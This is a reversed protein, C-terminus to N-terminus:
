INSPSAVTFHTQFGWILVTDCRGFQSPRFLHIFSVVTFYIYFCFLIRHVLNHTHTHTHTLSLSNCYIYSPFYFYFPHLFVWFLVFDCRRFLLVSIFCFLIRTGFQTHTHARAHARTHTHTHTHTHSLSLSLWLLHIFPLLLLISTFVFGFCCLIVDGLNLSLSLSLFRLLHIFSLLLLISIFCYWM